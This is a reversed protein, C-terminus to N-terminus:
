DASSLANSLNACYTTREFRSFVDEDLKVENRPGNRDEWEEIMRLLRDHWVQKDKSDLCFQSPIFENHAGQDSCLVPLGAMLAELPPYGFGEAASPFLLCEAHWRFRNLLNDDIGQQHTTWDLGQKRAKVDIHASGDETVPSGVHHVSVNERCQPPLMCLIDVIFNLRKRAENSGVVLINFKSEDFQEPKENLAATKKYGTQDVHYAVIHVPKDPFYRACLQKTYNTNCLIADARSIGKRLKKLDSRRILGPKTEGIHIMGEPFMEKTPYLHFFDHVYLFVPITSTKPILHAQEQDTVLAVDALEKTNLMKKVYRPHKFWRKLLRKIPNLHQVNEYELTGGYAWGEVEESELLHQLDFFAKGLGSYKSMSGGRILVLRRRMFSSSSSPNSSIVVYM